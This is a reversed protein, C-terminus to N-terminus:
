LPKVWRARTHRRFGARAYLNEARAHATEVELDVAACGADRAFALAADLLLGGIGRQRESPVVYLEELWASLGAHELAWIFSVYAVGVLVGDRRAVFIQARGPDDLAGAVAREVGSRSTDIDHEALQAMLLGVVGDLDAPGAPLIDAAPTV